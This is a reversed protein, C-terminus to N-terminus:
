RLSKKTHRPAQPHQPCWIGFLTYTAPGCISLFVSLKKSDPAAENVELYHDVREFYSIWGELSPDFAGVSGFPLAMFYHRKGEDGFSTSYGKTVKSACHM